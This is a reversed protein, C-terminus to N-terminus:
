ARAQYSPLGNSVAWIAAQTRNIVHLKRLIAKIHVKVTAETISLQRSILKNADGRILCNLIQIERESLNVGSRTADWEGSFGHMPMAIMESITQSPVIKEGQAIMQLASILPESSIGKSLYGDAGAALARVITVIACDEAILVLRPVSFRERLVACSDASDNGAVTDVIILRCDEVEDAIDLLEDASGVAARVIFQHDSLIRRLGERVIENRAVISISCALM